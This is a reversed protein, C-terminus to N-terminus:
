NKQVDAPLLPEEQSSGKNSQIGPVGGSYDAPQVSDFLKQLMVDNMVTLDEKTWVDKKNDLISQIKSERGENYLTVGATIQNRMEEPMLATYDELTKLSQKYADIVENKNVQPEPATEEGVPFLKELTSQEQTLLWEKDEETFRSAKNAILELVKKESCPKKVDSMNQGGEKNNIPKNTRQMSMTIYEVKRRVETKTGTFNINNADDIEYGQQYLTSGGSSYQEYIIRDDYVEMLYHGTGDTDQSYLKERLLTMLENYGQENTILNVAFGQENLSRFTKLLDKMEGGKKSNVRIGCGDDWSCAGIGGPLLALHDPRYNHAVASYKEGQWEGGTYESDSFVGVSVDIPNGEEIYYLLTTNKIKEADLYIEAKLKTGEMKTNFVRGVAQELIEPSSNVSVNAGDKTPHEITVAIGDWSSTYKGLEDALHLVPGQSGSHVGEMMMTVPLVLHEKGEFVITKTDFSEKVNAHITLIAKTKKM